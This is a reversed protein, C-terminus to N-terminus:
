YLKCEFFLQPHKTNVPELKIAVEMNTKENIGKFVEGFAGSNIKELLKFTRGVRIEISM